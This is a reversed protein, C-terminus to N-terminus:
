NIKGLNVFYVCRGKRPKTFIEQTQREMKESPRRKTVM